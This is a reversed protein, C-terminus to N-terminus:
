QINNKEDSKSLVDFMLTGVVIITLTLAVYEMAPPYYLGVYYPNRTYTADAVIALASIQFTVIWLGLKLIFVSLGSMQRVARCFRRLKTM